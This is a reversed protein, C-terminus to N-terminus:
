NVEVRGVVTAGRTDVLATVAIPRPPCPKRTSVLLGLARLGPGLVLGTEKASVTVGLGRAEAKLGTSGACPCPSPCAVVM